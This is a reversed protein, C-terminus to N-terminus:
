PRAPKRAALRRFREEISERDLAAELRDLPLHLDGAERNLEESLAELARWFHDMTEGLERGAPTLTLLRRRSDTPDLAREVLGATILGSCAQSVAVHTVRLRQAIEGGSIPGLLRIQNFPGYWRQQFRIGSAAYLLGVDQDIRESLRRLRAGIAAAGRSRPYDSDLDDM